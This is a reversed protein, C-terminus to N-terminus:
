PGGPYATGDAVERVNCIYHAIRLPHQLNHIIRHFGTCSMRYHGIHWFYHELHVFGQHLFFQYILWGAQPHM